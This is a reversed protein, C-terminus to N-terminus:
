LHRLPRAQEGDNSAELMPLLEDWEALTLAHDMGIAYTRYRLSYLWRLLGRRTATRALPRGRQPPLQHAAAPGYEIAQRMSWLAAAEYRVTDILLTAVDVPAIPRGLFPHVPRGEGGDFLDDLQVSRVTEYGEVLGDSALEEALSPGV